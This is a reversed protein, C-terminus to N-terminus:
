KVRQGANPKPELDDRLRIVTLGDRVPLIVKEVDPDAAVMDNFLMIGATQRDGHRLPQVVHGDWLTNDAIIIGGPRLVRKAEVYYESYTRKDADLFVMDYSAADAKRMFELGDCIHLTICHEMGARRINGLIRDELEDDVEVADLHGGRPLGEALSIASYGVFTGIELIRRPASLRVLMKLLRGQLHGSCMRGNVLHVAADRAVGRLVEPESDIHDEIYQSLEGTM